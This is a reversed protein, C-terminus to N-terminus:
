GRWTFPFLPQDPTYSTTGRRAPRSRDPLVSIGFIYNIFAFMPPRAIPRYGPSSQWPSEVIPSANM